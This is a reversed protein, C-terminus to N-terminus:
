FCSFPVMIFSLILCLPRSTNSLFEFVAQVQSGSDFQLSFPQLSCPGNAQRHSGLSYLKMIPM